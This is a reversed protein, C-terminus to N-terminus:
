QGGLLTPRPVRYTEFALNDIVISWENQVLLLREEGYERFKLNCVHVTDAISDLTCYFLNGSQLDLVLM